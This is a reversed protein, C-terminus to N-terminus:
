HKPDEQLMWKIPLKESDRPPAVPTGMPLLSMNAGHLGPWMLAENTSYTCKIIGEHSSVIRELVSTISVQKEHMTINPVGVVAHVRLMENTDLGFKWVSDSVPVSFKDRTNGWWNTCVLYVYFVPPSRQELFAANILDVVETVPTNSVAISVDGVANVYVAPSFENGSCNKTTLACLILLTIFKFSFKM